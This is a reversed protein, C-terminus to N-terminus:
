RAPSHYPAHDQYLRIQQQLAVLLADRLPDRKRKTALALAQKATEEAERFRGAEAYAAALTMLPIPEERNNIEVGREALRVAAPGDRVSKDPDTALAWALHNIFAPNDPKLRNAERWAGVAGAVDGSSGLAVGLHFWAEAFEPRIRAAARFNDIAANLQDPQREQMLGLNVYAEAYNPNLNVVRQFHDIANSFERRDALGKAYNLQNLPSNPYKQVADSWLAFESRYVDNRAVTTSGLGILAVTLMALPTLWGASSAHDGRRADRPWIRDCLTWVGLAALLLVTASPLYMRYEFAADRIPIFSSTPALVLFFMAGLFGLMPRKALTWGTLGLLAVIVLGPWVIQSFAHTPPWGYNISLGTPWFVLRLYHVLVGPQTLLYQVPTFQSVAFGTTGGHFHTAVLSWVIIGWTASLGLYLSWREALARRFSGSLFARDYLLVVLPATVMVEKTAMGLACATVAALSWLVPKLSSSHPKLSAPAASECIDERAEERDGSGPGRVGSTAGRIVCYLTLLYFLGALSESRQIVYTVAQTQLPHVVWLLAVALALPTAVPGFREGLAPLVLTRRVIGFLIWAALIHIALNVGHFGWVDPKGAGDTKALAYNIALTLNVVPRGGLAEDGIPAFIPGIPWLQRINSNSEIWAHDDFVFAGGFSNAYVWIAALAILAASLLKTWRQASASAPVGACAIIPSPTGRNSRSM